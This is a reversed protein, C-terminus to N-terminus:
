EGPGLPLPARGRILMSPDSQLDSVVNNLNLLLGQSLQGNLNSYAQAASSTLDSLNNVLLPMADLTLELSEQHKAMSKTVSAVSRLIETINDQNEQRLLYNIHEDIKGLSNTLNQITSDLRVMLSPASLIVPLDQGALAKLKPSTSNGGKLSVFTLGTIGQSKLTARTDATIPTDAEVKITVTVQEPKHPTLKISQVTGVDVGNFKVPAEVTLGAVSETLYICYNEYVEKNIGFTMWLTFFVISVSLIIVFLGVVFYNVKPDM